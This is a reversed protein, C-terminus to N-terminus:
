QRSIHFIADDVIRFHDLLAKKAMSFDKQEIGQVIQEHFIQLEEKHSSQALIHGRMDYIFTSTISSLAQLIDIILKNQSILAITYHFKMDLAANKEEDNSSRMERVISRLEKLHSDSRVNCALEVAKIELASRLQSVQSYDLNQLVFMMSLSAILTKEFNGSLYIGANPQYDLIGLQQYTRYCEAVTESSVHLEGALHQESPLCDGLKYTGNLIMNHVYTFVKEYAEKTPIEQM